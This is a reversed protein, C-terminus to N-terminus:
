PENASLLSKKFQKNNPIGRPNNVVLINYKRKRSLYACYQLLSHLQVPLHAPRLEAPGLASLLSRGRNMRAGSKEADTSTLRQM